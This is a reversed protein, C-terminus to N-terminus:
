RNIFGLVFYPYKWASGDPHKVEIGAEDYNGEITGITDIYRDMCWSNIWGNEYDIERRLILVREGQKVNLAKQARLYEESM